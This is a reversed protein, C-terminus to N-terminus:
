GFIINLVATLVLVGIGLLVPSRYWGADAGTASHKRSEKPTLSYVLGVLREEPVPRTFTTVVVSVVIDVAFAAGAGVFSAGQGPLDVVGTEALVFVAVAALTGSVLGIWGAAASMRKWFMALIFTAFLPANFFSFLAQIYDMINGYGAALFATGIAILTGGITALRGIRLYYEDPRDKRVYDQWLDYTFVTNFSSVNAAVGAMFSALLGTIAIGLMGNPLLEGILAPLANNYVIGSSGDGAKLAQMEPVVLAAIIGPIIIVFPILAKPYAGIIPTRRAASMSKASLARQVEAFNTTWYGFSLVFGLGFVIGIVSLVPNQIGTLETAPWASLQESGGPGATVKDVLGQWGGVKHLGVITLPLLAAVIVFFQLVENYIAASLGGLTTYTLVILAAIVVSLPIPWGLMLNLLFALAYLNVGAILVQAVAFSIANVLHAGKGFRRRLFEPVSRVKSGYYFPMMVLGLFVMAPIAGIWYYHVTAMGYQAGNAAMGLLEIAGLNASIFALGTVWAPLSRGSLLFDLSSSVSRRALFGIGLVFAFYIALLAYDLPGADLRLDAEALVPM